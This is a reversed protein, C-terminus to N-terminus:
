SQMAPASKVLYAQVWVSKAGSHLREAAERRIQYGARHLAAPAHRCTSETCLLILNRGEMGSMRARVGKDIVPMDLGVWTFGWFYLSQLSTLATDASADYWFAPLSAQFGNRKMFTMLQVGISFTEDANALPSNHTEFDLHTSTSAASGYNVSAMALAAVLLAAVLSVRRRSRLTGACALTIAILGLMIMSGRTGWLDNRNFGYIAILPGAGVLLGLGPLVALPLESQSTVRQLLGFVATALVAFFFPYLMSFYYTLQLFTGSWVFEWLALVVFTGIAVGTLALGVRSRDSRSRRQWAILAVAIVFPPILLRPEGRMWEYNPLKFQATSFDNLAEISNIFFLLRGGHVEAFVGCLGILLAGGFVFFAADFEIKRFAGRRDVTVRGYLYALVGGCVLLTAFLNVAAASAGFFGALTPRVRGARGISCVLFYLAGLLYTITAGDVYDWTHADVYAVNTLFAPYVFLATPVGFLSRVLLYLFAGGALFLSLHLVVYAQAPTLFSNLLVGPIILPLRAAYYTTHFWHYTFDFNAMLATYFWPDVTWPESYIQTDVLKLVALAAVTTTAVLALELRRARLATVSENRVVAALVFSPM